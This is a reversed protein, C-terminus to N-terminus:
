HFASAGNQEGTIVWWKCGGTRYFSNESLGEKEGKFEVGYSM